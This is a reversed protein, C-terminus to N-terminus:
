EFHQKGITQYANWLNDVAISINKSVNNDLKAVPHQQLHTDIIEMVMNLRDLIEHYHYEDLEPKNNSSGM